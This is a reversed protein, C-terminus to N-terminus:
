KITSLLIVTYDKIPLPTHGHVIGNGICKLSDTGSTICGRPRKSNHINCSSDINLEPCQGIIVLYRHTKGLAYYLGENDPVQSLDIPDYPNAVYPLLDGFLEDPKTAVQSLVIKVNMCCAGCGKCPSQEWNDFEAGGNWQLPMSQEMYYYIM